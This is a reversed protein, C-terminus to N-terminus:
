GGTESHLAYSRRYLAAFPSKRVDNECKIAETQARISKIEDRVYLPALSM